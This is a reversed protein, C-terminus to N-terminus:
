EVNFVHDSYISDTIKCVLDNLTRDVKCKNNSRITQIYHVMLQVLKRLNLEVRHAIVDVLYRQLFRPSLFWSMEFYDILLRAVNVQSKVTLDHM